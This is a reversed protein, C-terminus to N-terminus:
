GPAPPLRGAATGGGPWAEGDIETRGAREDEGRGRLYRGGVGTGWGM